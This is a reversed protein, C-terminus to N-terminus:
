YLYMQIPLLAPLWCGRFSALGVDLHWQYLSVTHADISGAALRVLSKVADSQVLGLLARQQYIMIVGLFLELSYLFFDLM